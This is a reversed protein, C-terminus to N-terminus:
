EKKKRCRKPGEGTIKRCDSEQGASTCSNRMNVLQAVEKQVQDEWGNRLKGAPM